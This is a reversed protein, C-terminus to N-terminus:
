MSVRCSLLLTGTKSSFGPLLSVKKSEHLKLIARSVVTGYVAALFVDSPWHNNSDIRQLSIAVATGYAFISFPVYHIHHSLIVAVQFINSAHGSPFSTGGNFEFHRPGSQQHPRFRGVLINSLNKFGGAILHSELIQATITTLFKIRLFYGVALGAFYFKNTVGMHGFPKTAEGWRFLPNLYKNSSNRQVADLIEQDYAYLIGGLAITSGLWLAGNRNIRVPSSVLYWTDSIYTSFVYKLDVFINGRPYNEQVDAIAQYATSTDRVCLIKESASIQRNNGTSNKAKHFNVTPKFHPLRDPWFVFNNKEPSVAAPDFGKALLCSGLLHSIVLLSIINKFHHPNEAKIL